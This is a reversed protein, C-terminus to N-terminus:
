LRTPGPLFSLHREYFSTNPNGRPGKQGLIALVLLEFHLKLSRAQLAALRTRSMLARLLVYSPPLMHCGAIDQEPEQVLLPVRAGPIEAQHPIELLTPTIRSTHACLKRSALLCEKKFPAKCLNATTHQVVGAPFGCALGQMTLLTCSSTCCHKCLRCHTSAVVHQM